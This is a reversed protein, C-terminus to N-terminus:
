LDLYYQVDCIKNIRYMIEEAEDTTFFNNNVYDAQSLYEEMIYVYCALLSAKIRDCTIDKRGLQEKLVLKDVYASQATYISALYDRIDSASAAM